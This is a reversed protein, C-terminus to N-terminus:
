GKPSSTEEQYLCKAAIIIKTINEWSGSCPEEMKPKWKKPNM